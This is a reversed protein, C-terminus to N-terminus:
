VEGLFEVLGVWRQSGTGLDVLSVKIQAPYQCMETKVFAPQRRKQLKGQVQHCGGFEWIVISM